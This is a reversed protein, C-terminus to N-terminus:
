RTTFSSFIVQLLKHINSSFIHPSHLAIPHHEQSLNQHDLLGHIDDLLHPPWSTTLYTIPSTNELHETTLTLHATTVTM